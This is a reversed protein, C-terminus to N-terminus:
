PKRRLVLLCGLAATLVVASEVLTDFGRYDGLVATVVNPTDMEEISHTSYYPSVRKYAPSDGSGFDPLGSLGVLLVAGLALSLVIALIREPAGHQTVERPDVRRMLAMFFVTSVGTGVVIETFAVDIAGMVAFSLALLASYVSLLLVLALTNRALAITVASFTLMVSLLILIEPLVTM